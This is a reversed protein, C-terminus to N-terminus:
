TWTVIATHRLTLEVLGSCTVVRAGTPVPAGDLCEELVHLGSFDPSGADEPRTPRFLLLMADGSELRLRCVELAGPSYVLHLAM